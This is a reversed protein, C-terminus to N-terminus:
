LNEAVTPMANTGTHFCRTIDPGRARNALVSECCPLGNVYSEQPTILSPLPSGRRQTNNKPTESSIRERDNADLYFITSASGVSQSRSRHSFVQRLPTPMSDNVNTTHQHGATPMVLARFVVSQHDGDVSIAYM